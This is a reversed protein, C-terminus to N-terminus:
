KADSLQISLMKINDRTPDKVVVSIQSQRGSVVFRSARSRQFPKDKSSKYMLMFGVTQGDEGKFTWSNKESIGESRQFFSVNATKKDSFDGKESLIVQLPYPSFNILHVGSKPFNSENLFFSQTKGPESSPVLICLAKSGIDTPVKVALFPEPLEATVAAAAAKKGGKDESVVPGPDEKWFRVIGDADPKIWPSPTRSGIRVARFAKGHRCYLPSPLSEGAPSCIVFRVGSRPLAAQEGM